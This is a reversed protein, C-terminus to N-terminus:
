RPRETQSLGRALLRGLFGKGHPFVVRASVVVFIPTGREPDLDIARHDGFGCRSPNLKAAGASSEVFTQGRVRRHFQRPISVGVFLM